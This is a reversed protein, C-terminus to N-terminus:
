SPRLSSALPRPTSTPPPESARPSPTSSELSVGGSASSSAAGVEPADLSGAAKLLCLQKEVESAFTLQRRRKESGTEGMAISPPMEVDDDNTSGSKAAYFDTNRCPEQGANSREGRTAAGPPDHREVDVDRTVDPGLARGADRIAADNENVDDPPREVDAPRNGAGKTKLVRGGNEMDVDLTVDPGLARGADRIAVDSENVDDHPREVDAPRNGAGKTKLDRDGNADGRTAVDDDNEM